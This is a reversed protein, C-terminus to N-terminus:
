LSKIKGNRRARILSLGPSPQMKLKKILDEAVKEMNNLIGENKYRIIKLDFKQELLNDREKDRAKQFNHVKGDLEIAIGLSACYFDVIFHDLPKQRTFKFNVLKKDKLIKSWFFKEAETTKRRLERARSILNKHYPIYPINLFKHKQM